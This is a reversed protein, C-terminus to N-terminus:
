IRLSGGLDGKHFPSKLASLVGREKVLPTPPIQEGIDPHAQLLRM